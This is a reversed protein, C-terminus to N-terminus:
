LGSLQQYKGDKGWQYMVYDSVKLDGKSDFSKPGLVTAVQNAKLWSSVKISDSGRTAKAAAAVTQLAAYSYLTYGEPEYGSAQFEKVVQQGDSIQRPDAGFTMMAGDAYEAGGATKLFDDSVIGDGSIFAAKVGQERMQRLLPGAEPHLGGFYVTDAGSSRIKTVLANFDKEGRTLGEYMIEKIGQSNLHDKTADVLGQGYTDKDHIMAIKKSNLTDLMYDAAVQGQQDDRGCIRFVASLGQETLKPNTSAPTIMVVGAEDYIKSAPISSSSCFHGIVFDVNDSDVLRNAVAVAQKPECADDAKVLKIKEGNVGGLKNIDAAAKEAGKWLQEGFAAYAGTHPGAVGVVIDAQASLTSLGLAGSLALTFLGQSLNKKSM